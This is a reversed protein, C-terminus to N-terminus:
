IRKVFLMKIAKRNSDLVSNAQQQIFLFLMFLERAASSNKNSAVIAELCNNRKEPWDEVIEKRFLGGPHILTISAGYTLPM